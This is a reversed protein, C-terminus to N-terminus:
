SFPVHAYINITVSVETYAIDAGYRLSLLRTPLTGIRVMPALIEKNEYFKSMKIDSYFWWGTLLLISQKSSYYFSYCVSRQLQFENHLQVTNIQM